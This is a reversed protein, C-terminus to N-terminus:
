KSIKTCPFASKPHFWYLDIEFYNFFILIPVTCHGPGSTLGRKGQWACGMATCRLAAAEGALVTSRWQHLAHGKRSGRRGRRRYSVAGVRQGWKKGWRVSSGGGRNKGLSLSAPLGGENVKGEGRGGGGPAHGWKTAQGRLSDGARSGSCRRIRQQRRREPSCWVGAMKGGNKWAGWRGSRRKRTYSGVLAAKPWQLTAATFFRRWTPDLWRRWM